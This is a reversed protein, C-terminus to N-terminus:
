NFVKLENTQRLYNLHLSLFFLALLANEHHFTTNVFGIGFISAWASFSGMIFLMAKSDQNCKKYSNILIILWIFMFSLFIIFGLIGRDVLNSLYINHPHSQEINFKEADFIEGRSEVSSKIQDITISNWNGNGIGLLPNLRAVEFAKQWIKDRQSLIDNNNQNTIQKEIVPAPSIFVITVLFITLLTLSITKIKIPLKSLLFLAFILLFAVGFAGRSQSVIISSTLFIFLLSTIFVYKKKTAQLQSILLALSAGTMMCLYIASHNVHGVSHLQLADKTHLVLSQILGWILPPLTMLIAFIFLYKKEEFNYDSRFLTWGFTIWLLMGRFGKWESGGAIFPFLASLFSSAILSLFVWDWITWKSSRLQSQRYLATILYGALFINKPVELSPLFALFLSLFALELFKLKNKIYIKKFSDLSFTPM